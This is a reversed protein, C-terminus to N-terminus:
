RLNQLVMTVTILFQLSYPNYHLYSWMGECHGHLSVMDMRRENGLPLITLLSM